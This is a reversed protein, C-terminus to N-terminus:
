SGGLLSLCEAAAARVQQWEDAERLAQFTWMEKNEYGSMRSLKNDLAALSAFQDRSLVGRSIERTIALLTDSFELALEDASNDAGISELYKIQEKPGM